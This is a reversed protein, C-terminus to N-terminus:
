KPIENLPPIHCQLHYANPCFDCCLLDGGDRCVLCWDENTDGDVAEDDIVTEKSNDSQKQSDEEEEEAINEEDKENEIIIEGNENAKREDNVQTKEESKEKENSNIDDDDKSMALQHSQNLDTAPMILPTNDKQQNNKQPDIASTSITDITATSTSNDLTQYLMANQISSVNRIAQETTTTITMTTTPTMTTIPLQILPPPPTPATTVISIQCEVTPPPASQKITSASEIITIASSPMFHLSTSIIDNGQQQTTISHSQSANEQVTRSQSKYNIFSTIQRMQDNSLQKEVNSQHNPVTQNSVADNASSRRKSITSSKETHSLPNENLIRYSFLYKLLIIQFLM